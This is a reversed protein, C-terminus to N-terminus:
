VRLWIDYAGNPDRMIMLYESLYTIGGFGVLMGVYVVENDPSAQVKGSLRLGDGRLAITLSEGKELHADFHGYHNKLGLKRGATRSIQVTYPVLINKSELHDQRKAIVTDRRTIPAWLGLVRRNVSHKGSKCPVREKVKETSTVRLVADLFDMDESFAREDISQRWYNPPPGKRPGDEDFWQGTEDRWGRKTGPVTYRITPLPVLVNSSPMLCTDAFSTTAEAAFEMNPGTTLVRKSPRCMIVTSSPPCRIGRSLVPPALGLVISNNCLMTILFAVTKMDSDPTTTAVRRGM